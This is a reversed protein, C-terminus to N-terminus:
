KEDSVVLARIEGDRTLNNIAEPAEELGIWSSIQPEFM